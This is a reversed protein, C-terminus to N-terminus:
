RQKLRLDSFTSSSLTKLQVIMFNAYFPWSEHKTFPSIYKGMPVNGHAVEWHSIEKNHLNGLLFKGFTLNTCTLGLAASLCVQSIACNPLQRQSYILCRTSLFQLIIKINLYKKPCQATKASRSVQQDQFLFLVPQNM